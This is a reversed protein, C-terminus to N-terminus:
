FESAIERTERIIVDVEVPVRIFDAEEADM